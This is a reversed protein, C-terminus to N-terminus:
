WEELGHLTIDSSKESHPFTSPWELLGERAWADSSGEEYMAFSTHQMVPLIDLSTMIMVPTIYTKKM